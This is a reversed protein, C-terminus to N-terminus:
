RGSAKQSRLVISDLGAQPHSAFTIEGVFTQMEEGAALPHFRWQRMEAEVTKRLWENHTMQSSKVVAKRVAGRRDVQIEARVANGQSQNTVACSVLPKLCLPFYYRTMLAVVDAERGGRSTQRAIDEALRQRVVAADTASGSCPSLRIDDVLKIAGVPFFLSLDQNGYSAYRRGEWEFSGGGAKIYWVADMTPMFEISDRKTSKPLINETREFTKQYCTDGDLIRVKKLVRVDCQLTTEASDAWATPTLYAQQIYTLKASDGSPLGIRYQQVQWIIGNTKLEIRDTMVSPDAASVTGDWTWFGAIAKRLSDQQTESLVNQMGLNLGKVSVASNIARVIQPLRQTFFIASILLFLLFAAKRM